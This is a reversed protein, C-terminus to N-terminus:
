PVGCRIVSSMIGVHSVIPSTSRSRKTLTTDALNSVSFNCKKGGKKGEEKRRGEQRGDKRDKKREKKREDKM